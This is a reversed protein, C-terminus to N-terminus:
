LVYTRDRLGVAIDHIEVADDVSGSVVLEAGRSRKRLSATVVDRGTATASYVEDDVDEDYKMTLSLSQTESNSISGSSLVDVAVWIKRFKHWNLPDGADIRNTHVEIPISGGYELSQASPYLYIDGDDSGIAVKDMYDMAVVCTASPGSLESWSGITLDFALIPEKYGNGIDAFVMYYGDNIICYIQENTLDSVIIRNVVSRINKTSIDEVESGLMRYFAITGDDTKGLFFVYPGYKQISRYAVLGIGGLLEEVNAGQTVEHPAATDPWTWIMVQHEKFVLMGGEIDIIGLTKQTPDGIVMNGGHGVNARSMDMRVNWLEYPKIPTAPTGDNLDYDTRTGSFYVVSTNPDVLWVRGHAYTLYHGSPAFPCNGVPVGAGGNVDTLFPVLDKVRLDELTDGNNIYGPFRYLGDVGNTFLVNNRDVQVFYFDDTLNANTLTGIIQKTM